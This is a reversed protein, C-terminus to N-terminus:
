LIVLKARAVSLKGLPSHPCDPLVLPHGPLPPGLPDPPHLSYLGQPFAEEFSSSIIVETEGVSILIIEKTEEDYDDGNDQM